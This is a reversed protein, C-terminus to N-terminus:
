KLVNITSNSPSFKMHTILIDEPGTITECVSKVLDKHVVVVVLFLSKLSLKSTIYNALNKTHTCSHQQMKQQVHLPLIIYPRTPRTLTAWGMNESCNPKTRRIVSVVAQVMYIAENECLFRIRPFISEISFLFPPLTIVKPTMCSKVFSIMLM